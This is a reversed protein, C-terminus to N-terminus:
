SVEAWPVGRGAAARDVWWVVLGERSSVASAPCTLPDPPGMLARRLAARKRVGVVVVDVRRAARLVPFTLTLRSPPEAPARVAVVWRRAEWVAPSGPFLSAVHGDSGMGLLVLDLGGFGRLFSRLEAEYARAADEPDPFDTPMPHVNGPPLCARRVLAEYVMQANSRADEPPVYREDTWWLHTRDWPTQGNQALLEYLLRPTRGGALAVGCRGRALVTRRLYGALEEAAARSATALDSFVRVQSRVRAVL